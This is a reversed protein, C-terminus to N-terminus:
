SVGPPSCGQGTGKGEGDKKPGSTHFGRRFALTKKSKRKPLTKKASEEVASKIEQWLEEPTSEEPDDEFLVRFRTKVEVRYSDDIKSMDYRVPKRQRKIRRLKFKMTALLLQNTQDM